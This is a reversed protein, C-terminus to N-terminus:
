VRLVRFCAAARLLVSFVCLVRVYKQAGGSLINRRSLARRRARRKAAGPGDTYSAEAPLM